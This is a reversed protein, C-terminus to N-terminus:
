AKNTDELKSIDGDYAKIKSTNKPNNLQNDDFIM